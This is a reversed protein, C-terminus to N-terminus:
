LCVAFAWILSRLQATQDPGESDAKQGSSLKGVASCLSNFYQYINWFIKRFHKTLVKLSLNENDADQRSISKFSMLQIMLFHDKYQVSFAGAQEDADLRPMRQAYVCDNM